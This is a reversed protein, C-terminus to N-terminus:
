SKPITSEIWKCIPIHESEASKLKKEADDRHHDGQEDKFFATYLGLELDKFLMAIDRSLNKIIHYQALRMGVQDMPLQENITIKESNWENSHIMTTLTNEITDRVHDARKLLSALLPHTSEVETLMRNIEIEPKGDVLLVLCSKRIFEAGDELGGAYSGDTRISFTAESELGYTEVDNDVLWQKAEAPSLRRLQDMTKYYYKKHM